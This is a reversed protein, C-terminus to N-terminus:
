NEGDVDQHVGRERKISELVDMTPLTIPPYGMRISTDSVIVRAYPLLLPAVQMDVWQELDDAMADPNAEFRGRYLAVIEMVEEENDPRMLGAVVRFYGDVIREDVRKTRKEFKMYAVYDGKPEDERKVANLEELYAGSLQAQTKAFNYMQFEEKYKMDSM